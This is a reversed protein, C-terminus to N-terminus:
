RVRVNLATWLYQFEPGESATASLTDSSNTCPLSFPAGADADPADFDNDLLVQLEATAGDADTATVTYLGATVNSLVADQDGNSWAYSYAPTGGEAAVTVSGVSSICNPHEISQINVTLVASTAPASAALDGTLYIFGFLLLCFTRLM